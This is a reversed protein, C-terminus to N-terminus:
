EAATGHADREAEEAEDQLRERHALYAVVLALPVFIVGLISLYLSAGDM